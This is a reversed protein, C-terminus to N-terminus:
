GGNSPAFAASQTGHLREHNVAFINLLDAVYPYELALKQSWTRYRSALEREQKGGEGRWHVGRSNYVGVQMGDAIDSSGCDRLTWFSM